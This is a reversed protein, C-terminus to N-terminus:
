IKEGILDYGDYGTIRVKYVNGVDCFDGKFYVLGDIDPADAETRGVFMNRDYDINEYIVDFTKGVLSANREEALRATLKGLADVRELKVKKPIQEKMRASPTGNEKSYAFAGTHDPRYESVFDMLEAFQEETEGPFGVMFTTRIAIGVARLKGFLTKIQASDTRRGM